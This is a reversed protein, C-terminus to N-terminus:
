RAYRGCPRLGRQTLADERRAICPAARVCCGLGSCGSPRQGLQLLGYASPRAHGWPWALTNTACAPPQSGVVHAGDPIRAAPQRGSQATKSSGYEEEARGQIRSSICHLGGPARARSILQPLAQLCARSMEGDLEQLQTAFPAAQRNCHAFATATSAPARCMTRVACMSRDSSGKSHSPGSLPWWLTKTAGHSVPQMM